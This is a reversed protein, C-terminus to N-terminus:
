RSRSCSGSSGLWGAQSLAATTPPASASFSPRPPCPASALRYIAWDGPLFFWEEFSPVTSRATSSSRIQHLRIANGDHCGRQREHPSRDRRARVTLGSAKANGGRSPNARHCPALKRAHSASSLRTKVSPVFNVASAARPALNRGQRAHGHDAAACWGAVPPGGRVARGVGRRAGAGVASRRRRERAGARHRSRGDRLLERSEADLSRAAGLREHLKALLAHLDPSAVCRRELDTGSGACADSAASGCRYLTRPLRLPAECGSSSRARRRPAPARSSRERREPARAAARELLQADDRWGRRAASPILGRAHHLLRQLAGPMTRVAGTSFMGPAAPVIPSARNM